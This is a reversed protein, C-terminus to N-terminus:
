KKKKTAKKAAKKKAPMKYIGGKPGITSMNLGASGSIPHHPCQCVLRLTPLGPVRTLSKKATFGGM